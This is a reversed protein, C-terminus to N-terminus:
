RIRAGFKLIELKFFPEDLANFHTGFYFAPTWYFIDKFLLRAGLGLSFGYYAKNVLTTSGEKLYHTNGTSCTYDAYDEETCSEFGGGDHETRRFEYRLGISTFVGKKDQIKTKKGNIWEKRGAFTRRHLDVQLKEDKQFTSSGFYFLLASEKNLNNKSFLSITGSYTSMMMNIPNMSFGFKKNFFYSNM